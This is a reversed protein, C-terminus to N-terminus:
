IKFVCLLIHRKSCTSIKLFLESEYMDILFKSLDFICVPKCNDLWKLNCTKYSFRVKNWFALQVCVIKLFDTATFNILMYVLFCKSRVHCTPNNKETRFLHVFEKKVTVNWILRWVLELTSMWATIGSCDNM